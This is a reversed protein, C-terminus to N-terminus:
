RIFHYMGLQLKKEIPLSDLINDGAGHNCAPRSYERRPLRNLLAKVIGEASVTPIALTADSHKALQLSKANM